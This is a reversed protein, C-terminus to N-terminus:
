VVTPSPYCTATVCLSPSIPSRITTAFTSLFSGNACPDEHYVPDDVFLLDLYEQLTMLPVYACRCGNVPRFVNDGLKLLSRAEADQLVHDRLRVFPTSDKREIPNQPEALGMEQLMALAQRFAEPDLPRSGHAACSLNGTRTALCVFMFSMGAATHSHQADVLCQLCMPPPVMKFGAELPECSWPGTERPPLALARCLGLSSSSGTLSLVPSKTAVALDRVFIGYAASPEMAKEALSVRFGTDAEIAHEWEALLSTPITETDGFEARRLMLGDHILVGVVHGSAVVAGHLAVLCQREYEQVIYAFQTATPNFKKPDSQFSAVQM